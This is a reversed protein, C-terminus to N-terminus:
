ATAKREEEATPEKKKRGQNAMVLTACQEYMQLLGESAGELADPLPLLECVLRRCDDTGATPSPMALAILLLLAAGVQM